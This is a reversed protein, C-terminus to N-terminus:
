SKAGQVANEAAIEQMSPKIRKSWVDGSSVSFIIQRYGVGFLSETVVEIGHQRMLARAAEGNREGVTVVGAPCHNPFMNGGGFIKAECAAPDVGATWLDRMMLHMAEDGYRGDFESERVKRGRTPLVFHSMGGIRAEPHWLTFSVCSGLITRMQFNANGVFFEGPQLFVEMLSKLRTM